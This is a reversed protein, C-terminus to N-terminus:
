VYSSGCYMCHYHYECRGDKVGGESIDFRRFLGRWVEVTIFTSTLDGVTVLVQGGDQLNGPGDVGTIQYIEKSPGERLSLTWLGPGAKLQFYGQLVDLTM